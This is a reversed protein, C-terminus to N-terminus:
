RQQRKEATEERSDKEGEERSDRGEEATERHLRRRGMM